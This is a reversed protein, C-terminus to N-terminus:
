NNGSYIKKWEEKGTNLLATLYDKVTLSSMEKDKFHNLPNNLTKGDSTTCSWEWGMEDFYAYNKFIYPNDCLNYCVDGMKSAQWATQYYYPMSKIQEDTMEYDMFRINGCTSTCVALAEDTNLYALLKKAGEKQKASKKIHLSSNPSSMFFTSKSALANDFWPFPMIGFKRNKYDDSMEAMMELSVKAENHWHGGDVFFAIPYVGNQTKSNEISMLYTDQATLYDMSGGGAQSDYYGKKCIDYAFQLADKKGISNRLLYANAPTIKTPASDGEFTYEGDMNKFTNFADVGDQAVACAHLFHQTYGNVSSWTFPIVNRKKMRELLKLFESYTVPLGDDYTGEVGDQGISLNGSLNCWNGDKDLFLQKSNFLDVDYNLSYFGGGFPVNYYKGDYSTAYDKMDGWMKSAITKTETVPIKSDALYENLPTTLVDTVDMLKDQYLYTYLDLGGYFIDQDIMDIKELLSTSDYSKEYHVDVKYQPYMQEFKAISKDLWERGWGGEYCGFYIHEKGDDNNEGCGVAGIFLSLTLLLVTVISIMRKKM